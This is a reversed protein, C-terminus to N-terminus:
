AIALALLALLFAFRRLGSARTPELAALGLLSTAAAAASSETAYTGDRLVSAVAVAIAGVVALWAAAPLSGAAVRGLAVPASPLTAALSGALAGVGVALGLLPTWAALAAGPLVALRVAALLLGGTGLAVAGWLGGRGVPAAVAGEGAV